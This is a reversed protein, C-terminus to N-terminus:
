CVLFLRVFSLERKKEWVQTSKLIIDRSLELSAMKSKSFPIMLLKSLFADFFNCSQIGSRSEVRLVAKIKWM